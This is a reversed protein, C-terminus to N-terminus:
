SSECSPYKRPIETLPKPGPGLTLAPGTTWQRFYHRLYSRHYEDKPSLAPLHIWSVEPYAHHNLDLERHLNLWGYPWPAQLNFAGKLVDRPAYSHELYNVGSWIAGAAAYFIALRAVSLGSLVCVGTVALACLLLEGRIRGVSIEPHRFIAEAIHLRESMRRFVGPAVLLLLLFPPIIWYWFGVLMLYWGITRAVRSQHPYYLDFMEQDSRNKLHHSWHTISLMSSSIPFLLGGLVGLWRNWVPDSHLKLHSAEHLLAFQTQFLVAFVAVCLGLAWGSEVHAGLVLLGVLASFVSVTLLTNLRNPISRFDRPASSM